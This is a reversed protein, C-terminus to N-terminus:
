KLNLISHKCSKLNQANQAFITNQANQNLSITNSSQSFSSKNPGSLDLTQYQNAKNLMSHRLNSSALTQTLIIDISFAPYIQNENRRRFLKPTKRIIGNFIVSIRIFERIERVRFRVRTQPEHEM